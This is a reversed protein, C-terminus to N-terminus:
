YFSGDEPCYGGQAYAAEYAKDADEMFTDAGMEMPLLGAIWEDIDSGCLRTALMFFTIEEKIVVAGKQVSFYVSDIEYDEPSGATVNIELRGGNDPLYKNLVYQKRITEM